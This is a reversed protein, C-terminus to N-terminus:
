GYVTAYIATATFLINLIFFVWGVSIGARLVSLAYVSLSIGALIMSINSAVTIGICLFVLGIFGILRTINLTHHRLYLATFFIALIVFVITNTIQPVLSLALLANITAIAELGAFFYEKQMIASLTLFGAGITFLLYKVPLDDIILGITFIILGGIGATLSSVQKKM